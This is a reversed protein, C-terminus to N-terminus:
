QEGGNLFNIIRKREYEINNYLSDEWVILVNYDNESYANVYLSEDTQPHWYKGFVEIFKTEDYEYIFDPTVSSKYNKHEFRITRSDKKNGNYTLGSINLNIIMQEIKTPTYKGSHNVANGKKPANIFNTVLKSYEEDTLNNFYEKRSAVMKDKTEQNKMPNDAKMLESMTERANKSRKNDSYFEIKSKSIAEGKKKRFEEDHLKIHNAFSGDNGFFINKCIPCNFEKKNNMSKKSHVIALHGGLASPNNFEKKCIKCEHKGTEKNYSCKEIHKKFHNSNKIEKDCKICKNM